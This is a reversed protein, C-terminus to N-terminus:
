STYKVNNLTTLDIDQNKSLNKAVTEYQIKITKDRSEEKEYVKVIKEDSDYIEPVYSVHNFMFWIKKDTLFNYKRKETNFGLDKKLEWDDKEAPGVENVSFYENYM